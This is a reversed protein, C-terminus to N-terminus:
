EWCSGTLPVESLQLATVGSPDLTVRYRRWPLYFYTYGRLCVENVVTEGFLSEPIRTETSRRVDELALTQVWIGTVRYTFEASRQANVALRQDEGEAHPQPPDLVRPLLAWPLVVLLLVFILRVRWDRNEWRIAVAALRWVLSGGLWLLWLMLLNLLFDLVYVRTVGNLNIRALPLPFGRWGSCGPPCSAYHPPVVFFYYSGVCLLLAALLTATVIRFWNRTQQRWWIILLLLLLLAALALVGDQVDAFYVWDEPWKPLELEEIVM